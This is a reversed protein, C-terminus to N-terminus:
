HKILRATRIDSGETIKVFYVGVHLDSIDIVTKSSSSNIRKVVRGTVDYVDFVIEKTKIDSLIITVQNVAPNPSLSFQKDSNELLGVSAITVTTCASIVSCSGLTVETAYSGTISPTFTRSTAGSIPSNGNNCDLWRYTVGASAETATLTTGSLTVSADLPTIIVGQTQASSNGNGDTFIWTITTSSTIPFVVSTTGTVTGSCNDTATPPTISALHCVENITPLSSLDPVPAVNDNIVVNQTQTSSNGSGDTFTWTITTSSTIPFVVSTTGTVTGSCNDTATPPTISPVECQANITPLSGADPVPAINDDIVVSQTQTSSNGNGDTFTWTVIKSSTIPFVTSTTGTVTGSCNDSATPPAISTVECSANITSLSTLNPVPAINDFECVGTTEINPDFSLNVYPDHSATYLTSGQLIRTSNDRDGNQDIAVLMVDGGGFADLSAYFFDGQYVFIPNDFRVSMVKGICDTCVLFEKTILTSFVDYGYRLSVQAIQGVTTQSTAGNVLLLNIGYIVADEKILYACMQSGPSNSANVHINSLTNSHPNYHGYDYQTKEIRKSL